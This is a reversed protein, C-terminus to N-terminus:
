TGFKAPITLTGRKDRAFTSLLDFLFIYRVLLFFLVFVFICNFRISLSRLFTATRVVVFM